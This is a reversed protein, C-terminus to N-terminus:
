IANGIATYLNSVRTDLLSLTLASGISYFAIRADTYVTSGSPKFVHVNGNYPTSSTATVTTTGDAATRATFASSSARSIGHFATQGYSNSISVNSSMRSRAVTSGGASNGIASSSTGSPGGGIYVATNTAAAGLYASLHQDNQGDTNNNRGSDLYKTSANGLLGTKRAYDGSVFNYNTPASGVLPTLAGTLTRAGMLICSAKLSSWIGDAKCGLVFQNIAQAVALELQQADAQEVAKLYVGADADWSRRVAVLTALTM